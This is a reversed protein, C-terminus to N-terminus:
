KGEFKKFIADAKEQGTKVADKVPTGKLVDAMVETLVVQDGMANIWLHPKDLPLFTRFQTASQIIEKSVKVINNPTKKLEPEDWGWEYGPMSHGPSNEWAAKQNAKSMMAQLMEKAPDVNKSGAGIMFRFEGPAAVINKEKKGVPGIPQPTLWTDNAVNPAKVMATAFMTGANSSFGITGANYAENNGMDNWANVGPPMAALYKKDTYTQKLWEFAAVAEDSAFTPKNDASTYRAGANFFIDGVNTQGDGSRNVTNGWGWRKKAPDTVKICAELWDQMNYQKNVDVGIPDFWSKLVWYGGTTTLYTVGYWKGGIYNALKSGPHAKGFQETAWQVMDDVPQISKQNSLLFPDFGGFLLDPAQGASVAAAMKDLFNGGGTFGEEYSKDLPWGKEQAIKRFQQDIYTTQLPNFGRQQLVDLKGNVKAGTVAKAAPAAAPKTAAPAAAPAAPKTAAPATTPAAAPKTAAPATTPAAAAPKPPEPPKAPAPTATPPTSSCAALIPGAALIASWRLFARRAVSVNGPHMSVTQRM